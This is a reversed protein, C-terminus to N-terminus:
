PLGAGAAAAQVGDQLPALRGEILAPQPQADDRPAFGRSVARRTAPRATVRDRLFENILRLVHAFAPEGPLPLHNPSDFPELRAGHISSAILRGEEFPVRADRPSHLVLTPCAVAGLEETVDCEADRRM